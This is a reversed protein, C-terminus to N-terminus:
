CGGQVVGWNHLAKINGVVLDLVSLVDCEFVGVVGGVSVTLVVVAWPENLFCLSLIEDLGIGGHGSESSCPVVLSGVLAVGSSFCCLGDCCEFLFFEDVDFLLFGVIEDSGESGRDLCM